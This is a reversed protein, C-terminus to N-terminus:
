SRWEDRFNLGRDKLEKKVAEYLTQYNPLPELKEPHYLKEFTEGEPLGAATPPANPGPGGDLYVDEKADYRVNENVITGDVTTTFIAGSLPPAAQVVLAIALMFAALTVLTIRMKM